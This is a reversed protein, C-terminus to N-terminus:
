GALDRALNFVTLEPRCSIRMPVTSFGIGRNGYLRNGEAGFDDSWGALPLDLVLAVPSWDTFPVQVQGGHTHGAIALPATGAGLNSFTRPQTHVGRM